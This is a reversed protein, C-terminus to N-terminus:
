FVPLLWTGEVHIRIDAIERSYSTMLICSVYLLALMIVVSALREVWKSARLGFLFFLMHVAQLSIFCVVVNDFLGSTLIKIVENLATGGIWSQIGYWIIAPIARMLSSIVTGKFGFSMRLQVVYPVGDRYGMRD